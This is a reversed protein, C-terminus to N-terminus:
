VQGNPGQGVAVETSPAGPTVIRKAELPKTGAPVIMTLMEPLVTVNLLTAVMGPAAAPAVEVLTGNENVVTVVVQGM